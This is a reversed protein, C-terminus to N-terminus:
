SGILRTPPAIPARSAIRARSSPAGKSCLKLVMQRLAGAPLRAHAWERLRRLRQSCQARTCSNYVAWVRGLILTRTARDRGCRKVIKVVSHLFCLIICVTPFLSRWASQTGEWGDTCVTKPSYTPLLACAEQAFEGYAAELADASAAETVTAGLICGGGVTTPVSVEQGLAWTHKEDALVHEPLKEPQKVTSGVITPRGLAMEARYWYMANRGFVSVLADFPVGWHRLSLAKEVAETRGVMYPMLFSPRVLFVGATAKLEIRRLRLQQKLSWRKDHLVFGEDIRAPFLEPHQGFVATLHQRFSEPNAVCATYHEETDFPVCISKGRSPEM